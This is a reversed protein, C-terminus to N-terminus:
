EIEAKLLPKLKKLCNRIRTKVTGLPIDTNKSIEAHSFGQFFNKLILKQCEDGVHHLLNKLGMFEMPM